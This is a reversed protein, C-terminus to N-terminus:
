QVACLLSSRFGRERRPARTRDELFQGIWETVVRNAPSATSTSRCASKAVQWPSSLLFARRILEARREISNIQATYAEAEDTCEKRLADYKARTYQRLCGVIGM